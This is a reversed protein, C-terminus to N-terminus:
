PASDRKEAYIRFFLLSGFYVFSLFTGANIITFFEFLDSPWYYAPGASPDKLTPFRFRLDVQVGIGAVLLVGIVSLVMCLIRRVWDVSKAGNETSTAMAGYPNESESEHYHKAVM